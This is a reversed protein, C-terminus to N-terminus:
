PAHSQEHSVRYRIVSEKRGGAWRALSPVTPWEARREIRGFGYLVDSATALIDPGAAM